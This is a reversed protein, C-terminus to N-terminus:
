WRRVRGTDVHIFDSAAYYGVGGQQLSWAADRLHALRVDTLRVDIAKGVTHLSHEAVGASHARLEANTAPSRYGSIVEYTGSSSTLSQMASLIDFLGPDIPMREGTRFDALFRSLEHLADTIYGQASRYAIALSEGTHTHHFRLERPQEARARLPFALAPTLLGCVAGIFRRRSRDHRSGDAM